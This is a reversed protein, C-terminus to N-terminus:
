ADTPLQSPLFMMIVYAFIRISPWAHGVRAPAIMPPWFRTRWFFSTLRCTTRRIEPNRAAHPFYFDVSQGGSKACVNLFRSVAERLDIEIAVDRVTGHPVRDEQKRRKIVAVPRAPADLLLRAPPRVCTTDFLSQRQTRQKARKGRYRILVDSKFIATGRWFSKMNSFAGRRAALLPKGQENARALKRFGPVRVRTAARAREAAGRRCCSSSAPRLGRPQQDRSAAQRSTAVLLACSHRRVLLLAPM